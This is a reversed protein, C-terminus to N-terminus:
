EGSVASGLFLSREGARWVEDVHALAAERGAPGFTVTWGAPVRAFEPWLSYEGVNNVLVLFTGDRDDFPNTDFSDTSM